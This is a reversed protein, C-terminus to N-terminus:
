IEMSRKLIEKEAEITSINAEYLRNASVLRTMEQVLDVDPYQVMGNEDADPHVPDYDYRFNGTEVVNFQPGLSQPVSSRLPGRAASPSELHRPDSWELTSVSDALVREFTELGPSSAQVSQTRYGGGSGPPATTASNAINRSAAAIKERQVALGQSATQFTSFIRDPLM